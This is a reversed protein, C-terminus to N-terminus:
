AAGAYDITAVGMQKDLSLQGPAEAQCTGSTPAVDRYDRGTAVTLYEFGPQRRHTPDFAMARWSHRTSLAIMVEVWAHSPGEGMLHGSVYRAPLGAARCVAIMVHAYDQCVGRGLETVQGATTTTSTEGARYTLRDSVWDSIREALEQDTRAISRLEAAAWRLEANPATLPTPTCLAPDRAVLHPGRPARREVLACSSFEVGTEVRPVRFNVVLNSFRDERESRRGPESSDVWWALRRQGGHRAPPVLMLRQRLDSVPGPYDYRVRQRLLCVTRAARGWDAEGHEVLEMADLADRDLTLTTM